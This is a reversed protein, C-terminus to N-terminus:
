APAHSKLEWLYYEHNEKYEELDGFVAPFMISKPVMQDNLIIFESTHELNLVCHGAEHFILNERAMEGSNKWFNPDIQIERFGTNNSICLGVIMGDLPMFRTSINKTSFGTLEEFAQLLPDFAPERYKKPHNEPNITRDLDDLNSQSCGILFLLFLYKFM